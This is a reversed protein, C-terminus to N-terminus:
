AICNAGSILSLGLIGFTMASVVVGISALAATAGRFWSPGDSDQNARVSGLRLSILDASILGASNGAPSRHASSELASELARRRSEDGGTAGSDAQREICFRLELISDTVFPLWGLTARLMWALSLLRDHNREIHENEHMVVVELEDESLSEVTGSSIVVQKGAAFALPKESPVVVLEFGGRDTHYGIMPEVHAARRSRRLERHKRSGRVCLAVLALTAVLGGLHGGALGDHFLRRCFAALHRAGISEFLAPVAMSVLGLGVLFGGIALSGFTLNVARSAELENLVRKFLGPLALFMLGIAVVIM